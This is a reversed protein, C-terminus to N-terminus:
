CVSLELCLVNLGNKRLSACQTLCVGLELTGVGFGVRSSLSPCQTLRIGLELTVSGFGVRSSM